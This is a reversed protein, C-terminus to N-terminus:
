PLKRKVLWIGPKWSVTVRKGQDEECNHPAGRGPAASFCSHDPCPKPGPDIRDRYAHVSWDAVHRVQSRTRFPMPPTPPITSAYLRNPWIVLSIRTRSAAYGLGPRPTAPATPQGALATGRSRPAAAGGEVRARLPEGVLTRRPCTDRECWPWVPGARGPHCCVRQSCASGAIPPETARDHERGVRILPHAPIPRTRCLPHSPARPRALTRPVNRAPLRHHRQLWPHAGFGLARRLLLGPYLPGM